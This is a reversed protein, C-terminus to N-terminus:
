VFRPRGRSSRRSPAISISYGRGSLGFGVAYQRAFISGPDDYRAEMHATLVAEPGDNTMVLPVSWIAWVVGVCALLSAFAFFSLARRELVRPTVRAVM